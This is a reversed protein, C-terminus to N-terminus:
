RWSINEINAMCQNTWDYRRSTLGFPHLFPKVARAKLAKFQAARKEAASMPKEAIQDEPSDQEASSSDLQEEQEVKHERESDLM